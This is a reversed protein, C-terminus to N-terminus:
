STYGSSLYHLGFTFTCHQRITTKRRWRIKVIDFRFKRQYKKLQTHLDLNGCNIVKATNDHEGRSLLYLLFPIEEYSQILYCVKMKKKANTNTSAFLSKNGDTYYQYTTVM